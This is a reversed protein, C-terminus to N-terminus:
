TDSCDGFASVTRARSAWEGVYGTDITAVQCQLMTDGAQEWPRRETACVGAPEGKGGKRDWKNVKRDWKNVGGMWM